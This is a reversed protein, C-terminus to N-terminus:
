TIWPKRRRRPFRGRGLTRDKLTAQDDKILPYPRMDRRGVAEKRLPTREGLFPLQRQTQNVSARTKAKSNCPIRAVPDRAMKATPDVAGCKRHDAAPARRGRCASQRGTQGKLAFEDRPDHRTPVPQHGAKRSARLASIPCSEWCDPSLTQALRPSGITPPSASRRKAANARAVLATAGQCLHGNTDGYRCEGANAHDHALAIEKIGFGSGRLQVRRFFVEGTM